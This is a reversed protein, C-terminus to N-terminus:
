GLSKMQWKMVGNKMHLTECYNKVFEEWGNSEEVTKMLNTIAQMTDDNLRFYHGYTRNWNPNMQQIFIAETIDVQEKTYSEPLGFFCIKDVLCFRRDEYTHQKFRRLIDVTQGVYLPKKQSRNYYFYIYKEAM